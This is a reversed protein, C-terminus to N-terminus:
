EIDQRELYLCLEEIEPGTFSVWINHANSDGKTWTTSNKRYKIVRFGMQEDDVEFGADILHQKFQPIAVDSLTYKNM